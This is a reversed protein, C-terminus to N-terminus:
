GIKPVGGISDNDYHPKIPRGNRLLDSPLEDLRYSYSENDDKNVLTTRYKGMADLIQDNQCTYILQAKESSEFLTIIEPLIKSHLHVDLEDAIFVNAHSPDQIDDLVVFCYALLHYLRITGTSQHNLRLKKIEGAIEFLFIPYYTEDGESDTYKEIKIDFIGTDFKVLLNKVFDLAEPLRYYFKHVGEGALDVFGFSSVNSFVGKFFAYIDKTCEVEYQNSTSIISANKRIQPITHLGEYEVDLYEIESGERRFLVKNVRGLNFLTENLVETRNVNLEYRYDIEGIRFECFLFIPKSNNFYSEIGIEDDPKNSFSNKLFESLFSYAKLANTKGAANAGKICMVNSYSKGQSIDQPCNKNLRLDIEFDDKFCYFNQGGYKLLM